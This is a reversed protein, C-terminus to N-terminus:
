PWTTRCPLTDTRCANAAHQDKLCAHVVRSDLGFRVMTTCPLVEFSAYAHKVYAVCPQSPYVLFHPTIRCVGMLLSKPNECRNAVIRWESVCFQWTSKTVCELGEQKKIASYEEVSIDPQSTFVEGARPLRVRQFWQVVWIMALVATAAASLWEM